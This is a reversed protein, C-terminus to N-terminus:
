SRPADAQDLAARALAVEPMTGDTPIRSVAAVLAARAPEGRLEFDDLTARLEFLAAGQRRALEAAAAFGATRADRDVHTHSRLRLLEAGYFHEDNDDAKQLAADLNRRAEDHQGASILRRARISELFGHYIGARACAADLLKTCSTMDVSSGTRDGSGAELSVLTEIAARLVLGMQQWQEIGYRESREIMDTALAAADGLRRAEIRVWIEFFSVYGRSWPGQPFGLHDTRAVARALETHAGALDGRVLCDLGLFQFAEAIPDGPIFWWALYIDDGDSTAFDEIAADVARRGADLEGRLWALIGLCSNVVPRFFKRGDDPSDRLSEMVKVTRRLDGRSFYYGAVAILTAVLDSDRETGRLQLCCEFDAAAAPSGTGEAASAFFGRQLRLAREHRDHEPSPPTKDLGNLAHTLYTRAEGFAGRRGADVAVQQYASAADDFRQAREYHDAVVRWDPNAGAVGAVLADAARAHLRRRVSPPALEAAVERLLEHRFRWRDVGFPELVVADELEDIVDDVEEASLASVARLLPGDVYRGIIAAAEAVPVAKASANLRAILPEYLAEPVAPEASSSEELGAVVQEIHFPIGDCRERVAARQRPNLTPELAVILEDAQEDTLPALDFVKMPWGDPLWGEPRCTLVVLLRRPDVCLLAGVVDITWLDFWHADEAVLLAPGEGLCARLYEGVGAAILEQLKRGEAPAPQYGCEPAIGLVPALLRVTTIPDLGQARIEKGLLRFREAPDASRDIGCRHEILTRVPHLGVDTHFPSGTLELITGGSGLVMDVAASALRSKGIGPEGRFVVGPTTLTGDEARAWSKELRAVERSRGVLPGRWIGVTESREGVVQYHTMLGDVGKVPAAPRDELEFDKRLLTEIAESVVVAGPPALSSVRAALNAGLGYVDDQATDLYVLGRHVGVRVAIDVGFGRRAQQSLRTVERTIELGAQVARRVDNDHATPHGFVALLGDGKTSGIHGGYRDVIQCVRERYRGVLVRYTEPEVLGSLVTSDVLDAFLITLRRIEGADGSTALLDEADTNDQDVALVEGALAAATVRDGRNIASVARDLLQDVSPGGGRSGQEHGKPGEDM